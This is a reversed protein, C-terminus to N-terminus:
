RSPVKLQRALDAALKQEEPLMGNPNLKALSERAKADDGNAALVIAFYLAIGPRGLAESSLKEMVTKAEAEKGALHLAYAYTAAWEPVNPNAASAERALRESRESAGNLLLSLFADNNKKAPNAPELDSQARAVRLLKRTENTQSYLDWLSRLAKPATTPKTAAEWLLNITEERWNWGIVLQALLFGDPPHADVEIELEKWEKKWPQALERKCRIRMARRIFEGGDWHCKALFTELGNWNHMSLYSEATSIQVRVNSQISEPLKAFWRLMEPAMGHSNLWDGAETVWKADSEARHQIEELATHFSPESNAAELCILDDRFSRGPLSRLKEAYRQARVRDRSRIANDLLTRTAFLGVRSDTLVSELERAAAARVEPSSANTLRFAAINVRHVPNGHDLEAARVFYAEALGLEHGALAYGAMLEHYDASRNRFDPPLNNLAKLAMEGQDFRLASRAWAMINAPNGPERQAIHTWWSLAAPKDQAESIEAMLRMAEINMDDASLARGTWFEARTFESKLFERHARKLALHLKAFRFGDWGGIILM